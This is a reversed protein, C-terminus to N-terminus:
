LFPLSGLTNIMIHAIMSPYLSKTKKLAYGAIIGFILAATLLVLFSLSNLSGSYGSHLLAFIIASPVIGIRKVFLGRFTIEEIIPAIVSVFIYFWIPPVTPASQYIVTSNGTIQANTAVNVAAISLEFLLIIIFIMIGILVNKVTLLNRSLGLEKSFGNRM